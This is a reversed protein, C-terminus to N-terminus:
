KKGIGRFILGLGIQVASIGLSIFFIEKSVIQTQKDGFIMGVLAIFMLAFLIFSFIYVLVKIVKRLSGQGKEPIILQMLRFWFEVISLVTFEILFSLCGM